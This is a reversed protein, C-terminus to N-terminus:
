KVGRQIKYLKSKIDLLKYLIYIMIPKKKRIYRDLLEDSKVNFKYYEDSNTYFYHFQEDNLIRGLYKVSEWFNMYIAATKISLFTRYLFVSVLRDYIKPYDCDFNKFYDSQWNFIFCEVEFSKPVVSTANNENVFYYYVQDKVFSVSKCYRLYTYVFVMDEAYAQGVPFLVGNEVILSRKFLKAWCTFFFQNSSSLFNILEDKIDDLVTTCRFGHNRIANQLLEDSVEFTADHGAMLADVRSQNMDFGVTPYKTSFLRALPLGVYGLGIVCIKINTM